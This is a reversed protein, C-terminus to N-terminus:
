VYGYVAVYHLSTGILVCVHFIAHNFKIKRMSYLVAGVTYAVGGGILWPFGAADYHNLLPKIAFVIMWGMAVYMITSLIDYKGTFFIKLIIGICALGWSVGFATWGVWGPLTVLTFPTYTGAILVYIAAHDVIQMRKRLHPTKSAHYFTSAAYLCIMSVGFVTFSIVAAATGHDVSKIILFVLGVVSMVMGIAHTIVNMREESATYYDM